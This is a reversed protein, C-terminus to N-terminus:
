STWWAWTKPTESVGVAVAVGDPLELQQLAVAGLVEALREATPNIDDPLRDNLHQHDLHDDIWAGFPHLDAYDVVMGRDDLEAADLQLRVRYNHGHLRACQHAVPLGVLQHSASFTFEKTITFM